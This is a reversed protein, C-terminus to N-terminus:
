LSTNGRTKRFHVMHIIHDLIRFRQRDLKYCGPLKVTASSTWIRYLVTDFKSTGTTEWVIQRYAVTSPASSLRGASRESLHVLLLVPQSSLFARWLLHCNSIAASSGRSCLVFSAKSKSVPILTMKVYRHTLCIYVKLVLGIYRPHV